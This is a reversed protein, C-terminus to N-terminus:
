KEIFTHYLLLLVVCVIVINCIDVNRLHYVATLDIFLLYMVILAISNLTQWSFLTYTNSYRQLVFVLLMFHVSFEILFLLIPNDIKLKITAFRFTYYKPYIFAIYFGGVLVFLALFVLNFTHATYSHALTLLIVWVSLFRFLRLYENEFTKITNWWM